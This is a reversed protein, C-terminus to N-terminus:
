TGAGQYHRLQRGWFASAAVFVVVGALPSAYGFFVPIHLDSDHGLLVSAPLFAVFAVPVVTTLVWEGARGFVKAPYSGYLSFVSDVTMRIQRAGLTRFTLASLALQYGGELLAGGAVAAALFLLSGATWTIPVLPVSAGLLTLGTLLDGVTAVQVRTTLLQVLANVPRVLFRDFTGERVYEELFILQNLPLLALGHSTLRMGYMLGIDTISWGAVQHFRGLVVWMTLFGIGQYLSGALVAMLLDARYQAIGRAAGSFLIAGARVQWAAERWRM